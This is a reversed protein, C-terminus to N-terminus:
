SNARMRARSSRIDFLDFVASEEIDVEARFCCELRSCAWFASSKGKWLRCSGSSVVNGGISGCLSIWSLEFCCRLFPVSSSLTFWDPICPSTLSWLVREFRISSSVKACRMLTGLGPEDSLSSGRVGQAQQWCSIQVHPRTRRQKLGRLQLSRLRPPSSPLSGDGSVPENRPPPCNGPFILLFSASFLAFPRM